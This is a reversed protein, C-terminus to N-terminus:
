SWRGNGSIRGGGYFKGRAYEVSQEFSRGEKM